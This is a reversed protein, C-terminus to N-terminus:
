SFLRKSVDDVQKVKQINKISADPLNKTKASLYFDEFGLKGAEKVRQEAKSLPRIEGTLAIEGGFCVTSPIYINSYSSIISACIALEVAPDQVKINGALSVFVDKQYLPYSLRKELVAILLQLRKHDYGSITRQPQGYSSQTVLAQVEMMLVQNGEMISATASGSIKNENQSLLLESINLVQSLGKDRMEFVGIESSPGYRNKNTRILRLDNHQDGEFQLVVDVMHELVKPGAIHGDKTIHGILFFARNKSKAYDLFEATSERIQSISGPASDSQDSRTTQISDVIVYDPQLRESELIIQQTSSASLLYVEENTKKLRESRLKIQELSEEGSVYLIKSGKQRLALQLFLTSKGIGPEGSILVMSGPVVGGGLVRNLESSALQIRDVELADVESIRTPKSDASSSAWTKKQSGGLVKQETFSNWSKCSPCRGQWKVSENGCEKCFFVTKTKAM